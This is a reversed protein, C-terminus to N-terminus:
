QPYPIAETGCPPSQQGLEVYILGGSLNSAEATGHFISRCASSWHSVALTRWIAKAAFSTTRHHLFHSINGLESLASLLRYQTIGKHQEGDALTAALMKLDTDPDQEGFRWRRLVAACIDATEQLGIGM